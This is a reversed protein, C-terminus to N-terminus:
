TQRIRVAGASGPPPMVGGGAPLGVFEWWGGDYGELYKHAYLYANIEAQLFDDSFLTPLFAMRDEIAVTFPAKPDKM